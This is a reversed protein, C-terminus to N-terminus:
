AYLLEVGVVADWPTEGVCVCKDVAGRGVVMWQPSFRGFGDFVQTTFFGEIM